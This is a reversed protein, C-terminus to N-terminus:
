NGRWGGGDGDGGAVWRTDAGRRTHDPENTLPKSTLAKANACRAEGFAHNEFRNQNGFPGRVPLTMDSFLISVNM